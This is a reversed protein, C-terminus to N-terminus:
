PEAVRNFAPDGNTGFWIVKGLTGSTSSTAGDVSSNAMTGDPNITFTIPAAVYLYLGSTNTIDRNANFTGSAFSGNGVIFNATLQSGDETAFIYNGSNLSYPGNPQVEALGFTATLDSHSGVIFASIPEPLDPATAAAPTALYFVPQTGGGGTLAVRGISNDLTFVNNVPQSQSTGAQSFYVTGTLNGSNASVVGIQTLACPGSAACAAGDGQFDVGTARFIFNGSFTYTGADATLLARGSVIPTTKSLPDIAILFVENKNIIYSALHLPTGNITITPLVRGTTATTATTAVTGTQASFSQTAGADDVDEALSSITGSSLSFSGGVAVHGGNPDFGDEGFAFRSALSALSFEATNQLLLVGSALKTGAGGQSGQYGDFEIIQGHTAINSGNLMKSLAFHFVVQAGNAYKLQVCGQGDMNVAYSGGVITIHQPGGVALNNDEEGTTIGGTGNATFSGAIAVPTGNATSAQFGQLLFAYSGSLIAAPALNTIVGCPSNPNAITMTFNAQKSVPPTESDTVQIVFGTTGDVTPTGSISGNAALSLGSPLVNGNLLSWTFPGVGGTRAGSDTLGTAIYPITLSGLPLPQSSFALPPNVTLTVSPAAVTGAMATIQAAGRAVGTALGTNSVSVINPANNSWAFAVGNIVNGSSDKATATLQLSGGVTVFPTSPTITVSAVTATSGGGGNGGGGNGGGGGGGGHGGFCSVLSLSLLASTIFLVNPQRTRM